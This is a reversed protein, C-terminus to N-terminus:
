RLDAVVLTLHVGRADVAGHLGLADTQPDLLGARRRPDWVWRDLCNEVTTDDCRWILSTEPDAGLARLLSAPERDPDAALSRAASQLLPDPSWRPLHYTARIHTLLEIAWASTEADGTLLPPAQAARLLPETAADVGVYIPFRAIEKGDRLIQLLWEGASSLLFPSRFLM